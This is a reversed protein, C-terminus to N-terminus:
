FRRMVIKVMADVVNERPSSKGRESILFFGLQRNSLTQYESIMVFKGM